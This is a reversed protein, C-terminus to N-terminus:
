NYKQKAIQSKYYRFLFDYCVMEHVRNKTKFLRNFFMHLYSQILSNLSIELGEISKLKLINSILPKNSTRNIKLIDLIPSYDNEDDSCFTIFWEIKKRKSRFKSDLQKKLPRSMGFETGFGVKLIEILSLKEEIELQFDDLFSDIFKLAFLWRLEEGEDGKILSILDVVLKSDNFFLSESLEMTKFGYREIEPKYTDIQIKWILDQNVLSKFYPLLVSIIQGISKKDFFYFRLRLHFEPDSYRIFFWKEIVGSKLLNETVPKIIDTLIMDSIKPGTYIKYYLWNDGVIYNRHINKSIM